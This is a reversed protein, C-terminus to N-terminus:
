RPKATRSAISPPSRPWTSTNMAMLVSHQANNVRADQQFAGLSVKALLFAALGVTVGTTLAVMLEIMTFGRRKRAM